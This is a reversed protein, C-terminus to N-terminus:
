HSVDINQEQFNFRGVELQGSKGLSQLELILM